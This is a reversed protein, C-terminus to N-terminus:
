TTVFEPKYERRVRKLLAESINAEEMVSSFKITPNEKYLSIIKQIKEQPIIIKQSSSVGYKSCARCVSTDPVGFHQAISLISRDSNKQVYQAMERRFEETYYRHTNGLNNEKLIRQVKIQSIGVKQALDKTRVLGLKYLELVDRIKFDPIRNWIHKRGGLFYGTEETINRYKQMMYFFKDYKEPSLTTLRQKLLQVNNKRKSIVVLNPYKKSEIGLSSLCQYYIEREMEKTVSIYVRYRKDPRWYDICGEGAIIGRMYARIFDLEYTLIKEYTTKRVFEKIIQSFLNNRYKVVLSGYDSARLIKNKTDKIYWVKVPYARELPVNTKQVWHQIVKDEIEKRYDKDDPKNINVTVAWKWQSRKLELEKEFWGLVYNMLRHEHNTFSLTGIDKKGMEAQLLGIVEFTRIRKSIFRPITTDCEYYGGFGGPIQYSLYLYSDDSKVSLPLKTQNQTLIHVPLFELM